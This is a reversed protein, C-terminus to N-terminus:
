VGFQVLHHDLHRYMLRGWQEGTIKGFAPHAPWNKSADIAAFNAMVNRLVEVEARIDAPKRVILEPATPAGKPWPLHFMVLTNIPWYQLPGGKSAVVIEGTGLRLVDIVHAVMGPADLKGWKPQTGSQLRRFRTLIADRDHSDRISPM